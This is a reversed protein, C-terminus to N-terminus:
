NKIVEKLLEVNEKEGKRECSGDCSGGMNLWLWWWWLLWWFVYLVM